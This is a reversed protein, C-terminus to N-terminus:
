AGFAASARSMRSERQVLKARSGVDRLYRRQRAGEQKKEFLTLATTTAAHLVSGAARKPFVGCANALASAEALERGNEPILLLVPIDTQETGAVSSALAADVAILDIPKASDRLTTQKTGAWYITPKTSIGASSRQDWSQYLRWM